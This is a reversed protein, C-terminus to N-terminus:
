LVLIKFKDEIWMSVFFENPDDILFVLQMISNSRSRRKPKPHIYIPTKAVLTADTAEYMYNLKCYFCFVFNEAQNCMEMVIM